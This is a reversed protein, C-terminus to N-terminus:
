ATGGNENETFPPADHWPRDLYSLKYDSVEYDPWALKAAEYTHFDLASEKFYQDVYDTESMTHETDLWKTVVFFVYYDAESPECTYSGDLLSDLINNM